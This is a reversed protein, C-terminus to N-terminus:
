GQLAPVIRARNARRGALWGGALAALLPPTSYIAVPILFEDTVFGFLQGALTHMAANGLFRTITNGTANAIPMYITGFACYMTDPAALGMGFVVATAVSGAILFGVGQATWRRHRWLRYLGISLADIMPLLFTACMSWGPEGVYDNDYYARLIGLNVAVLLVVFEVSVLSVRPLKM